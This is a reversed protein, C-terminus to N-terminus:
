LGRKVGERTYFEYDTTSLTADTYVDIADLTPAESWFTGGHDNKNDVYLILYNMGEDLSIRSSIIRDEFPTKENELDERKALNAYPMYLGDHHIYSDMDYPKNNEYDWEPNIFIKYEEDSLFNNKVGNYTKTTFFEYSESSVRLSLIADTVAKDSEIEFRLFCGSYYMERVFYGNSVNAKGAAFRREDDTGYKTDVAGVFTFDYIMGEENSQTSTGQGHMGTLDVAEAEFRNKDLFRAYVNTDETLNANMNFLASFKSDKYWNDFIANEKTPDAPKNTSASANFEVEKEVYLTTGIYYRVKIPQQEVSKEIWKAHLTLDSTVAMDFTFQETLEADTFWGGFNFNEREPNDFATVNKGYKVKQSAPNTAGVYGLDFAVTYEHLAWGAYFTVAKNIGTLVAPTKDKTADEDSNADLKESYWGKFDHGVYTMKSALVEAYDAASADKNIYLSTTIGKDITAGNLDFTVLFENEEWHAFLTMDGTINQTFDFLEGSIAGTYWGTFAYHERDPDEPKKDGLPADIDAVVSLSAPAGTYNYNFTITAKSVKWGAYLHLDTTVGKSFDYLNKRDQETFWGTFAMTGDPYLPDAPKSVKDGDNVTITTDATVNDMYHFTVIHISVDAEWKAYVTIDSNIPLTEDFKQTGLYDLYWGRFIFGPNVPDAPLTVTKGAEVKVRVFTGDTNYNFKVIYEEEDGVVTSIPETKKEPDSGCSALGGILTLTTLLTLFVSTRKKM